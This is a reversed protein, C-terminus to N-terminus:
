FIDFTSKEEPQVQVTDTFFTDGGAWPDKDWDPADAKEKKADGFAWDKTGQFFQDKFTDEM